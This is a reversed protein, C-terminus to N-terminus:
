PVWLTALNGQNDLPGDGRRPLVAMPTSLASSGSLPLAPVIIGNQEADATSGDEEPEEMIVSSNMPLDPSDDSRLSAKLAQPTQLHRTNEKGFRSKSASHMFRNGTASKLLPTFEKKSPRGGRQDGLPIRSRPTQNPVKPSRMSRMQRLLDNQPLKSPSPISQETSFDLDAANSLRTQDVLETRPTDIAPFAMVLSTFPHLPVLVSCLLCQRAFFELHFLFHELTSSVRGTDTKNVPQKINQLCM